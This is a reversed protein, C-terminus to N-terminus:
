EVVQGSIRMDTARFVAYISEALGGLADIYYYGGEAANYHRTVREGPKLEQVAVITDRGSYSQRVLFVFVSDTSQPFNYGGYSITGSMWAAPGSRMFDGHFRSKNLYTRSDGAFAVSNGFLACVVAFTAILSKMKM